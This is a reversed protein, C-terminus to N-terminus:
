YMTSFSYCDLTPNMEARARTAIHHTTCAAERMLMM